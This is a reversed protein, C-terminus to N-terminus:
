DQPLAIRFFEKSSDMNVQVEIPDSSTWTTGDTSREVELQLTATAGSTQIGLAVARADAVTAPQSTSSYGVANLVADTLFDTFDVNPNFGNTIIFDDSLGDNHTDATTPDTGHTNLEADDTYGDGDSDTNNPDTGHTNVEDGDSLGDGDSDTNNPDSGTDSADVFTGTNTEVVDDLGDGDSDTIPGKYVISLNDYAYSTNYSGFSVALADGATYNFDVTYTGGETEDPIEYEFIETVSTSGSGTLVSYTGMGGEATDLILDNSGSADYGNASALWIRSNGADAGILEVTFTYVGTGTAAFTAPDILTAWMKANNKTDENPRLELDGDSDVDSVVSSASQRVWTGYDLQKYGFAADDKDYGFSYQGAGSNETIAEFDEVYSGAARTYTISLNDYAFSTNYSGFAVALADGAIYTFEVTYTGSTLEDVQYELIETISTTGTGSLPTYADMGSAAAAALVLDNSGSADYGNASALWIRSNGEDAAIMDVSLTYVGTGNAAFTAPDILTAWMKGNNKTDENPRLELDGDSDVDSVVSSASQRVWTGYDLQKYVSSAGDKDYGYSYNGAGAVETIAEFSETYSGPAAIARTYSISLNDYAFSTNYGGFAVSLADGATYEFELTYTGSATEDDIEYDVIETVSTTGTGSLPVYNAIDAQHLM